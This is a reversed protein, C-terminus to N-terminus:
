SLSASDARISPIHQDYAVASTVYNGVHGAMPEPLEDRVAPVASGRRFRPLYIPNSYFQTFEPDQALSKGSGLRQHM